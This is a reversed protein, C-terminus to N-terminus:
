CRVYQLFLLSRVTPVLVQPTASLVQHWWSHSMNVTCYELFIACRAVPESMVMVSTSDAFLFGFGYRTDAALYGKLQPFVLLLCFIDDFADIASRPILRVPSLVDRQYGM